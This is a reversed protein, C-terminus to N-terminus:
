TPYLVVNNVSLYNFEIFPTDFQVKVTRSFSVSNVTITNEGILIQKPPGNYYIGNAMTRLIRYSQQGQILGESGLMGPLARTVNMIMTQESSSSSGGDILTIVKKWIGGGTGITIFLENYDYNYDNLFIPPASYTEPEPEPEPTIFPYIVDKNLVIWESNLENTGASASWNGMNGSKVSDKRVLTHNRTANAIGAVSWGSGPDNHPPPDGIVDLLVHNPDNFSGYILGQADDGNFYLTGTVDANAIVDPHASPDCIKYSEGPQLIYGSVLYGNNQFEWTPDNIDNSGGNMNVYNYDGLDVAKDSPNYIELFRNFTQEGLNETGEGYM